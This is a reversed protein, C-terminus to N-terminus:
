LSQKRIGDRRTSGICDGQRTIGAESATKGGHQEYTFLEATHEAFVRYIQHMVIWPIQEDHLPGTCSSYHKLKTIHAPLQSHTLVTHHCVSQHCDRKRTRRRSLSEITDMLRCFTAGCIHTFAFRRQHAPCDKTHFINATLRKIRQCVSCTKEPGAEVRTLSSTTGRSVGGSLGGEKARVPPM